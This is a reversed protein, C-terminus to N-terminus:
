AAARRRDAPLGRLASGDLRARFRPTEVPLSPALEPLLEAEKALKAAARGDRPIRLVWEDDVILVKFDWGDDNEALPELMQLVSGEGGVHELLV